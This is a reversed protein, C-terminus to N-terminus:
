PRVTARKVMTSPMPRAPYSRRGPPAVSEFLPRAAGEVGLASSGSGAYEDKVGIAKGCVCGRHIAMMEEGTSQDESEGGRRSPKRYDRILRRYANLAAGSRSSREFYHATKLMNEAILHDAATSKQSPLLAAFKPNDTPGVSPPISPPDYEGFRCKRELARPLGIRAPADPATEQSATSERAESERAESERGGVDDSRAGGLRQLTRSDQSESRDKLAAQIPTAPSSEVSTPRGPRYMGSRLMSREIVAKFSALSHASAVLEKYKLGFVRKSVEKDKRSRPPWSRSRTHIADHFLLRFSEDLDGRDKLEDAKNIRSVYENTNV